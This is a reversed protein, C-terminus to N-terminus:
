RIGVMCALGFTSAILCHRTPANQLSSTFFYLLTLAQIMGMARYGAFEVSWCVVDNSPLALTAVTYGLPFAASSVAVALLASWKGGGFYMPVAVAAGLVIFQPALFRLLSTGSMELMFRQWVSMSSFFWVGYALNRLGIVVATLIGGQLDRQRARPSEFERKVLENWEHETLAVDKPPDHGVAASAFGATLSGTIVTAWGVTGKCATHDSNVFTAMTVAGSLFSKIIAYLWPRSVYASGPQSIFMVVLAGLISCFSAFCAVALAEEFSVVGMEGM